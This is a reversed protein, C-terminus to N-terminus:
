ESNVISNVQRRGIFDYIAADSYLLRLNTFSRQVNKIGEGSAFIEKDPFTRCIGELYDDVFMGAFDAVLHLYLCRIHPLSALEAVEQTRINSGLYVSGWGNKKLLYHIFLLPLEQYAGQPCFLVIESKADTAGLKETEAIIRNRILHGSFHEQAPAVRGTSWLLGTRLLYPYCIDAMCKEFGMKWVAEDLVTIFANEDFDVAAGILRVVLKMSSGEMWEAKRIEDEIQSETLSAIKSVKWGHHYLFSIRLLNKLDKNDYLRNRSEKRGPMLSNYRHEWGRLTHAKIGTLNEIDRITFSQM